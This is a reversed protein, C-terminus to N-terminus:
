LLLSFGALIADGILDGVSSGTVAEVAASGMKMYQGVKAATTKGTDVAEQAMMHSAQRALGPHNDSKVLPKMHTNATSLMAGAEEATTHVRRLSTQSGEEYSLVGYYAYVYEAEVELRLGASLGEGMVSLAPFGAGRYGTTSGQWQGFACTTNPIASAALWKEPPWNSVSVEHRNVQEPTLASMAGFTDSGGIVTPFTNYENDGLTQQFMTIRGAANLPAALPRVRLGVAVNTFREGAGPANAGPAQQPIFSDPFKAVLWSNATLPNVSGGSPVCSSSPAVLPGSGVSSDGTWTAQTASVPAGRSGGPVTSPYGLYLQNSAPVPFPGVNSFDQNWGDANAGVYVFGSANAAGVTRLTVKYMRPTAASAGPTISIPIPVPLARWPDAVCLAWLYRGADKRSFLQQMYQHMGRETATGKKDAGPIHLENGSPKPTRLKGSAKRANATAAKRIDKTIVHEVKKREKQSKTKTM